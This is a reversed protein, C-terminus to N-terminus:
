IVFQVVMLYLIVLLTFATKIQIGVADLQLLDVVVYSVMLM